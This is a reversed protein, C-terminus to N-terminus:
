IGYLQTDFSRTLRNLGRSIVVTAPPPASQRPTGAVACKKNDPAFGLDVGLGQLARILGADRSTPPGRTTM